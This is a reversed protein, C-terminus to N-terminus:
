IVERYIGKLEEKTESEHDEFLSSSNLLLISRRTGLRLVEQAVRAITTAEKLVLEVIPKRDRMRESIVVTITLTILPDVSTGIRGKTDTVVKRVISIISNLRSVESLM